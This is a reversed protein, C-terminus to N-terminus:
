EAPISFDAPLLDKRAKKVASEGSKGIARVQDNQKRFTCFAEGETMEEIKVKHTRLDDGSGAEREFVSGVDRARQADTLPYIVHHDVDRGVRITLKKKACLKDLATCAVEEIAALALGSDSAVAKRIEKRNHKLSFCFVELLPRRQRLNKTVAKRAKTNGSRVRSRGSTKAVELFGHVAKVLEVPDELYSAPPFALHRLFAIFKDKETVAGDDSGYCLTRALEMGDENFKSVSPSASDKAM